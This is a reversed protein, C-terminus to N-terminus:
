HRRLAQWIAIATAGLVLLSLAWKSWLEMTGEIQLAHGVTGGAIVLALAAHARRWTRPRLRLRRKGAALAATFILAWMAFVGWLAFPTPSSFTLVDIVDPPSTIWLGAIHLAVCSVLAIGSLRHVRRARPGRLGPLAGAILLPQVLLLGLCLVGAFGAAIYVPQRWALLPSLGSLVL